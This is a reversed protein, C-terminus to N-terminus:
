PKKLTYITTPICKHVSIHVLEQYEPLYKHLINAHKDVITLLCIIVQSGQQASSARGGDNTSACCMRKNIHIYTIPDAFFYMM